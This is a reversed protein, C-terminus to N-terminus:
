CCEVEQMSWSGEFEGGGFKLIKM